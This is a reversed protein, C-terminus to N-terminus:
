TPLDSQVAAVRSESLLISDHFVFGGLSGETSRGEGEKTQNREEGKQGALGIQMPTHTPLPFLKCLQTCASNITSTVFVAILHRPNTKAVSLCATASLM